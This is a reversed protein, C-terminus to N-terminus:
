TTERMDVLAAKRNAAAQESQVKDAERQKEIEKQELVPKVLAQLIAAKEIKACAVASSFEQVLAIYRGVPDVPMPAKEMKAVPKTGHSARKEITDLVEWGGERVKCIMDPRASKASSGTYGARKLADDVRKQCPICTTGKARGVTVEYREKCISCVHETM